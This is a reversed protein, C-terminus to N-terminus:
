HYPSWRSRCEKGVRREESRANKSVIVDKEAIFGAYDLSGVPLLPDTRLSGDAAYRDKFRLNGTVVINGKDGNATTGAAATVEGDVIGSVYLNGGDVFIGNGSPIPINHNIWGKGANTVDMTGDDKFVITTDGPLNLGENKLDQLNPSDFSPLDIPNAGLSPNPNYSPDFYPNDNPPGGHMYVIEDSASKVQGYFQPDGSIHFQSNTFVPGQLKDGTIFWVPTQWCWWGWCQTFYERNTFYSYNNFATDKVYISVDRTALVNQRNDKASGLSNLRYVYGGVNVVSVTYSGGGFSESINGDDGNRINVLSKYVGAEAIYFAKVVALNRDSSKKEYVVYSFYSAETSLLVILVILTAILVIGRRVRM